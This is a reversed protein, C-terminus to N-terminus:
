KFIDDLLDKVSVGESRLVKRMKRGLHLIGGRERFPTSCQM